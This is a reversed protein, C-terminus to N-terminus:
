DPYTPIQPEKWLEPKAVIESGNIQGEGYMEKVEAESKGGFLSSTLKLATVALNGAALEGFNVVKTLYIELPGDPTPSFLVRKMQSDFETALISNYFKSIDATIGVKYGRFLMLHYFIKQM